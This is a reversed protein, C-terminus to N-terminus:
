LILFEEMALGVRQVTEVYDIDNRPKRKTTSLLYQLDESLGDRLLTRWPTGVLCVEYNLTEM